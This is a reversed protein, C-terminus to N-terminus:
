SSLPLNASSVRRRASSVRVLSAESLAHSLRLSASSAALQPAPPWIRGLHGRAAAHVGSLAAFAITAESPVLGAAEGLLLLGFLPLAPATAWALWGMVRDFRDAGRSQAGRGKTM